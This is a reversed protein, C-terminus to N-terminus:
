SRATSRSATPMTSCFFTSNVPVTRSFRSQPLSFAVSSSSSSAQRAAHTSSNRSRMPPSSPSKPCPPAPTEPPCFCRRHMARVSSLCGRTSIKSSEVLATSMAVSAFIRSFRLWIGPTVVIMMAWRMVLTISASRMMTISSPCTWPCPVCASSKAFSLM